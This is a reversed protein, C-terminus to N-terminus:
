LTVIGTATVLVHLIIGTLRLPRGGKGMPLYEHYDNRNSASDVGTRYKCYRSYFGRVKQKYRQVQVLQTV